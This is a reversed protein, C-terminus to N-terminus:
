FVTETKNKLDFKPNEILWVKVNVVSKEMQHEKKFIVNKVTGVVM